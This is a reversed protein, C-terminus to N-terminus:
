EESGTLSLNRGSMLSKAIIDQFLISIGEVGAIPLFIGCEFYQMSILIAGTCDGTWTNVVECQFADPLISSLM